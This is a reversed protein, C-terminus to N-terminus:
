KNKKKSKAVTEAVTEEVPVDEGVEKSDENQIVGDLKVVVLNQGFRKCYEEMVDISNNLWLAGNPLTVFVNKNDEKTYHGFAIKAKVETLTM